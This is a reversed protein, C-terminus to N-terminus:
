QLHDGLLFQLARDLRIHPTAPPRGAAGAPPLGAPRFQVFAAEDMLGAKDLALRPDSPLDGPFVAAERVGDFIEGDIQEGPLPIGLICPLDQGAHRVGGERTSRLAALALVGVEAGADTARAMARDTVLRLIAELRDHSTHHLHDAKTAAFLLRDIRRGTLLELLSSSGPRFARLAAELARQLDAVAAAGENLATLVDVLVIQRDIRSFHDRFFPRVVHAKYSEFRREMMAALTGRRPTGSPLDLPFFTLLPSGALDGPMLFRGPNLTSTGGRVGRAAHLYATFIRAGLIAAQEDEAAGGDVTAVHALWPAAAQRRLPERALALAEASWAAYTQDLMGLDILWEGPYDVIDVNLRPVGIARRLATQPKFHLSVRLESIQRTGEPWVPPDASLAAIHAEYDFRPVADDPQPELYAGSLRHEAAVEFFPLRGGSTLNRILSTIFVTKGSRSLGTVGLRISPTFLDGLYASASQLLAEGSLSTLDPFRM